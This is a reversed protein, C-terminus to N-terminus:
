LLVLKWSGAGRRHVKSRWKEIQLVLLHPTLFTGKNGKKGKLALKEVRVSNYSSNQFLYVSSLHRDKNLILNKCKSSIYLSISWAKKTRVRGMKKKKKRTPMLHWQHWLEIANYADCECYPQKAFKWFSFLSICLVHPFLLLYEEWQTM